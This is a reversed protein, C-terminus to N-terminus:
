EASTTYRLVVPCHDSLTKETLPKGDFKGDDEPFPISEFSNKPIQLDTLIFDILNKRGWCKPKTYRGPNKLGVGESLLKWSYSDKALPINFDGLLFFDKKDRLIGNLVRLQETRIRASREDSGAKLHINLLSIRRNEVIFAVELGKRAGPHVALESLESVLVPRFRKKWCIGIEQDYGSTRTVKCDYSNPLIKQVATENEVEQLAIWDPDITQLHTRIKQFDIEKRPIRGRPFAKDDGIEDYLFMANFSALKLKLEQAKLPEQKLLLAFFPM